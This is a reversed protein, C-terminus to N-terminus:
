WPMTVYVGMTANNSPPGLTTVVCGVVLKFVIIHASRLIMITLPTSMWSLIWARIVGVTYSHVNKSGRFTRINCSFFVEEYRMGINKVGATIALRRPHSGGLLDSPTLVCPSARLANGEHRQYNVTVDPEM